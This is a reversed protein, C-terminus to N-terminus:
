FFRVDCNAMLMEYIIDVEDAQEAEQQASEAIEKADTADKEAGALNNRADRTKQEADIINREIEPIKKLANEAEAKNDRV